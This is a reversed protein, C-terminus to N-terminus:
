RHQTGESPRHYKELWYAYPAPLVWDPKEKKLALAASYPWNPNELHARGVMVLDLQGERVANDALVPTGFGWASSVPIGAERRVREAVPGLFAPGWPIKTNPITFGVSVSIMDVGLEKWQRILEISESLTEEDNGDYEIVGFRATLPFNEPIVKKIETIIEKSFRARNEFSGGYNDTRKNSHKSFFTQALYGHAFHLEIWEFGADVARKAAAVYDAKLREIDQLTMEKPVKPLGGGFAIASPAITPWGRSDGEPIHDDGEWPVNASAKRGAHALQIGPVAGATKISKTIERLETAQADNWLGLCKPTIRGEPSVATAEVIVLASGGRALSAYHTKHWDNAVGDDAMYQCMPPIAIRNKLKATKLEFTSFLNAM